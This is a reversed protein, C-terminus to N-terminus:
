NYPARRRQGSVEGQTPDGRGINGSDYHRITVLPRPGISAKVELTVILWHIAREKPHERVTLPLPLLWRGPVPSQDERPSSERTMAAFDAPNVVTWGPRALLLLLGFVVGYDLWNKGALTQIVSPSVFEKQLSGIKVADPKLGITIASVPDRSAAEIDYIWGSPISVGHDAAYKRVEAEVDGARSDNEDLLKAQHLLSLSDTAKLELNFNFLAARGRSASSEPGGAFGASEGM